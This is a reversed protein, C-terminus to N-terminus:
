HRGPKRVRAVTYPSPGVWLIPQGWQGGGVSCKGVGCNAGGPWSRETFAWGEM